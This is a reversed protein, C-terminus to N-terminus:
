KWTVNVSYAKATTGSIAAEKVENFSWYRTPAAVFITFASGVTGKYTKGGSATVKASLADYLDNKVTGVVIANSKERVINSYTSGFANVQADTDIRGTFVNAQYETDKEKTVNGSEDYTTVKGKIPDVFYTFWTGGAALSHADRYPANLTIVSGQFATASVQKGPNNVLWWGNTYTVGNMRGMDGSDVRDLILTKGKGFTAIATADANSSLLPNGDLRSVLIIDGAAKVTTKGTGGGGGSSGNDKGGCAALCFAATLLLILKTAHKM